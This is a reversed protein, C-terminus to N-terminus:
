NVSNEVGRNSEWERVRTVIERFELLVTGIKVDLIANRANLAWDYKRALNGLEGASLRFAERLLRKARNRKVSNGIAKKSATVGVRQFSTESPVIFATM